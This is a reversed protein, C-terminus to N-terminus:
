KQGDFSWEQLYKKLLATCRQSECFTSFKSASSVFLSCNHLMSESDNFSDYRYWKNENGFDQCIFNPMTEIDKLMTKITNKITM